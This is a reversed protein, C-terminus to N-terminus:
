FRLVRVSGCLGLLGTPGMLGAPVRGWRLPGAAARARDCAWRRSHPARSRVPPRGVAPEFGEASGSRAWRGATGARATACAVARAADRAAWAVVVVVVGCAKSRLSLSPRGPGSRRFSSCGPGGRSIMSAPPGARLPIHTFTAVVHRLIGRAHRAGGARPQRRRRRLPVVRYRGALRSRRHSLQPWGDTWWQHGHLSVRLNRTNLSRPDLLDLVSRPILFFTAVVHRIRAHGRRVCGARFQSRWWWLPVVRYREAPGAKRRCFRRRSMVRRWSAHRRTPWRWGM